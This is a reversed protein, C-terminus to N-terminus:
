LTKRNESVDQLQNFALMKEISERASYSIKKPVLIENKGDRLTVLIDRLDNMEMWPCHACSKCTAGNGATPAEFFQKDPAKKKMMHILGNDTGIIFKKKKSSAVFNIMQSTSGVFDALEIVSAPSEPHIVVEAEPMRLKLEKLEFM